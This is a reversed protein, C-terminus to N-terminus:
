RAAERDSLSALQEAARVQMCGQGGIEGLEAFPLEEALGVPITVVEDSIGPQVSGRGNEAPAGPGSPKAPGVGIKDLDKLVVPGDQDARTRPKSPSVIVAPRSDQGFRPPQPNPLHGGSKVSRNDQPIVEDRTQPCSRPDRDFRRELLAIRTGNTRKRGGGPM